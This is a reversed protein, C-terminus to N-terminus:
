RAQEEKEWGARLFVTRWIIHLLIIYQKFTPKRAKTAQNPTLRQTQTFHRSLINTTVHLRLQLVISIFIFLTSLQIDDQTWVVGMPHKETSNCIDTKQQLYSGGKSSEISHLIIWPPM